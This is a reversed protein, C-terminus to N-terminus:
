LMKLHATLTTLPDIGPTSTDNPIPDGEFRRDNGRFRSDLAEAVGKRLNASHIGAKAPIVTTPHAAHAGNAFNV